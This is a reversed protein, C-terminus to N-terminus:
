RNEDEEQKEYWVWFDAESYYRATLKDFYPVARDTFFVGANYSLNGLASLLKFM